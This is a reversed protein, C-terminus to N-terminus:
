LSKQSITLPRGLQHFEALLEHRLRSMVNPPCEVESKRCREVAYGLDKLFLSCEPCDRLHMQMRSCFADDLHHDLLNSLNSFVERCAFPKETKKRRSSPRSKALKPKALERRVYLRARHLRVRVTSEQLDLIQAVQATTLDEMDHLVLVLRYKAPLQRVVEGIRNSEQRSIAHSEPDRGSLDALAALENGDPMLEDLTLTHVPAFKSHRKGQWCRNRTVKYLWAALAEPSKMKQLYPLARLLVDQMTDEADERHGCVKMSFSYVTKQLLQLVKDMRSSDGTSLLEYAEILEPRM